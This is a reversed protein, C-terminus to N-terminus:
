DHGKGKRRQEVAIVIDVKGGPSLTSGVAPSQAIVTGPEAESVELTVDDLALGARRLADEAAAKTLGTLKPVTCCPKPGASVTLVVTSGPALETGAAPTQTLITGSPTESYPRSAVDLKLGEANALTTAREMTTGAFRPVRVAAPPRTALFGLAGLALGAVLLAVMLPKFVRAKARLPPAEPAPVPAIVRTAAAADMEPLLMTADIRPAGAAPRAATSPAEPAGRLSTALAQRMAAANAFRAEPDRALSRMVVAEVAQPLDARHIGPPVPDENLRRLATAIPTDGDFPRCRTLMEYLMVGVAYLDSQPVPPEGRLQEPAVYHVSGLVMGTETLTSEGLARAIGFDTMKVIGSKELMVNPPKVDRHIVGAAHAAALADLVQGAIANVSRLSLPAERAILDALTEGDVLEMVIGPRGDEEIFDFVNAMNPHQLSAAAKAERRFREAVVADAALPSRLLKVAVDRELLQDHARWVEGMGGEALLHELRYRGALLARKM